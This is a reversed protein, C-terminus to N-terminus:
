EAAHLNSSISVAETPPVPKPYFTAGKRWLKLAQWHIAAVIKLTMLPHGLVARLLTASTAPQATGTQTAVLRTQGQADTYKIMVQLRADPVPLAFRYLGDVPM